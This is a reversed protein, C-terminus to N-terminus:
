PKKFYANHMKMGEEVALNIDDGARLKDYEANLEAKSMNQYNKAREVAESRSAVEDGKSVDTELSGPEEASGPTDLNTFTARNGGANGGFLHNYQSQNLRFVGGKGALHIHEDHGADGPGLLEDGVGSLLNRLNKTRQQWSVGDIDDDRWDTIDIAEDYNHYSNPAHGGSNGGFASHERVRLGFNNQLRNGLDILPIEYFGDANPTYSM